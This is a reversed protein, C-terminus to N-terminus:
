GKTRPVFLEPSSRHSYMFSLCVPWQYARILDNSSERMYAVAPPKAHNLGEVILGEAREITNNAVVAHWMGGYLQMPGGDSFLNDRYICKERRAFVSVFSDAALPVGGGGGGGFPEELEWTRNLGEALGAKKFTRLQGQGTGSLIYAAAGTWNTDLNRCHGPPSCWQPYVPDTPFTIASGSTQVAGTYPSFGGTDSLQDRVEICYRTLLFSNVIDKRTKFNM